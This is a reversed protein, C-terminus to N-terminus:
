INTLVRNKEGLPFYALRTCTYLPTGLAVTGRDLPAYLVNICTTSRAGDAKLSCVHHLQM